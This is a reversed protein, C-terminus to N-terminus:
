LELLCTALKFPFHPALSAAMKELKCFESLQCRGVQVFKITDKHLVSFRDKESYTLAEHSSQIMVTSTSIVQRAYKPPLVLTQM